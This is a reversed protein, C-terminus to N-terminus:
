NDIKEASLNIKQVIKKLKKGLGMHQQLCLPASLTM